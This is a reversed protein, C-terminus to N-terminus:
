CFPHEVCDTYPFRGNWRSTIISEKFTKWIDMLTSANNWFIRNSIISNAVDKLSEGKEAPYDHIEPFQELAEDLEIVLSVLSSHRYEEYNSTIQGDRNVPARKLKDWLDHIDKLDANQRFVYGSPDKFKELEALFQSLRSEIEIDLRQIKTELRQHAQAVEMKATRQKQLYNLYSTIGYSLSGVVITSLVWLGFASNLFEWLGNKKASSLSSRIEFRLREEEKLKNIEEESLM